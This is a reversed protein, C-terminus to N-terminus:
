ENKGTMPKRCTGKRERWEEEQRDGNEGSQKTPIYMYRDKYKGMGDIGGYGEM